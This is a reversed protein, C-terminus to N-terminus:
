RNPIMVREVFLQVGRLHSGSLGAFVLLELRVPVTLRFLLSEGCLFDALMAGLLISPADNM